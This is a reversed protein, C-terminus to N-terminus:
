IVELISLLFKKDACAQEYEDMSTESNITYQCAKLKQNIQLVVAEKKAALLQDNGANLINKSFTTNM